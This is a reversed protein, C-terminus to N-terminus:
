SDIEIAIEDIRYYIYIFLVYLCFMNAISLYLYICYYVCSQMIYIYIYIYIKRETQRIKGFEKQVVSTVSREVREFEDVRNRSM